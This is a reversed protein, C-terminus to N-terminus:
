GPALRGVWASSRRGVMTASGIIVAAHPFRLAPETRIDEIENGVKRIDHLTDAAAKTLVGARELAKVRDVQRSGDFRTASRRILQEAIVEGFQRCKILAGNPDTYVGSEAGAGYITLLPEIPALSGFNVSERAAELLRPDVTPM